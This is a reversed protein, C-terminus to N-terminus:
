SYVHFAKTKQSLITLLQVFEWLAKKASAITQAATPSTISGAAKNFEDKYDAGHLHKVFEITAPGIKAGPNRRNIEKIGNLITTIWALGDGYMNSIAKLCKTSEQLKGGSVTHAGVKEIKLKIKEDLALIHFLFEESWARTENAGVSQKNSVELSKKARDWIKESLPAFLSMVGEQLTLLLVFALYKEGIAGSFIEDLGQCYEECGDAKKPDVDDLNELEIESIHCSLDELRAQLQNACGIFQNMREVYLTMLDFAMQNSFDGLVHLLSEHIAQFKELCNQSRRIYFFAKGQWVQDLQKHKYGHRARGAVGERMCEPEQIAFVGKEALLKTIKELANPDNINWQSKEAVVEEEKKEEDPLSLGVPVEPFFVPTPPHNNAPDM